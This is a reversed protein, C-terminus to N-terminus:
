DELYARFCCYVKLPTLAWLDSLLILIRWFINGFSCLSNQIFLPRHYESFLSFHREQRGLNNAWPVTKQAEASNGSSLLELLPLVSYIKGTIAALSSRRAACVRVMM